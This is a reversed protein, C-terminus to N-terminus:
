DPLGQAPRREGESGPVAHLCTGKRVLSKSVRRCNSVWLSLYRCRSLAISPCGYVSTVSLGLFSQSSPDLAAEDHNACHAGWPPALVSLFCQPQLSPRRPAGSPRRVKTTVRDFEQAEDENKTGAGDRRLESLAESLGVLPASHSSSLYEVLRVGELAESAAADPCADLAARIAASSPVM